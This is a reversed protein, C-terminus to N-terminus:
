EGSAHDQAGAPGAAEPAGAPTPLYVTFTSGTGPGMSFVEVHGGHLSVIKRVLALGIGLGGQRHDSHTGVQEFMEFVSAQAEVPIGIGDDTVEVITERGEQRAALSVRGRPPTYKAANALLNTFVQQLRAPDGQLLLEGEPIDTEFRHGAKDMSVQSAAAARALVGRLDFSESALQLKGSDIRSVDLLEDVLHGMQELQAKLVRHARATEDSGPPSLELLQACHLVPTLVNRLEHSLTALFEGRRRDVDSLNQAFLRLKEEQHKRRTVDVCVAAVALVAGQEDRVPSLALEVLQVSGTSAQFTSERRFTNGALAFIFGNHLAAPQSAPACWWDCEWFPTGPAVEAAAERLARNMEVIEGMPGVVCAFISQQEFFARFKANAGAVATAAAEAAQHRHARVRERGREVFFLVAGATILTLMVLAAVAWAVARKWTALVNELRTSVVVVLPQRDVARYSVVREYNWPSGSTIFTGARQQLLHKSFIPFDAFSRGPQSGEDPYSALLTGNAHLLSVRQGPQLDLMRYLRALSDLEVAAVAVGVLQGRPTSIRRTSAVFWGKGSRSQVPESVARVLSENQLYQNFYPRDALSINPTKPYDTDHLLDGDRGIVYLARVTPMFRLQSRLIERTARDQRAPKLAGIYAAVGELANDVGNFAGATNEAFLASLTTADDESQELLLRRERELAIGGVATVALLFLTGVLLAVRFDRPAEKAGSFLSM